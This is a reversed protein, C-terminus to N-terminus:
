YYHVEGHEWLEYEYNIRKAILDYSRSSGREWKRQIAWTCYDALQLCPDTQCPWFATRFRDKPIIQRCVDRVGDEFAVRKAKSGISAATIQISDLPSLFRKNSHRLHYLWGYQYFREDTPRVQPQAKSKEMITAQVTFDHHSITEFVADRIEQKDESCHFYDRLPAGKWALRRKLMLLDNAVDCSTTAVTCIIYYKSAKPQRSFNFDGAEDAFLFVTSM